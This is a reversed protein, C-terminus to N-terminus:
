LMGICTLKRSGAFDRSMTIALSSDARCWVLDIFTAGIEVGVRETTLFGAGTDRLAQNKVALCSLMLRVDHHSGLYLQSVLLVAAEPAPRVPEADRQGLSDPPAHGIPQARLLPRWRSLVSHSCCQCDTSFVDVRLALSVRSGLVVAM